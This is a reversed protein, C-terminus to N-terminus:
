HVVLYKYEKFAFPVNIKIKKELVDIKDEFCDKKKSCDTYSFILSVPVRLQIQNLIEWDCFIIFSLQHLKERRVGAM